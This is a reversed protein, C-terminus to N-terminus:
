FPGGKGPGLVKDVTETVDPFGVIVDRGNNRAKNTKRVVCVGM